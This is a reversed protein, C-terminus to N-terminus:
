FTIMYSVKLFALQEAVLFHGNSDRRQEYALYATSGPLFDWGWLLSASSTRGASNGQVIIRWYLDDTVSHTVKVNGVVFRDAGRPNGVEANGNLVVAPVPIYDGEATYYHYFDAYWMGRWYGLRFRGWSAPRHGFAIDYVDNHFDPYGYPVYRLDRGGRYNLTVFLDNEATVQLVPSVFNLTTESDANWNHEYGVSPRIMRVGGRNIQFEKLASLGAGRRGFDEPQLFATDARFDDSIEFYYGEVNETLGYRGLGLTYRYGDGGEGATQSKIGEFGLAMGAPFVLRGDVLGVNNYRARDDGPGEELPVEGGREQRGIGMVGFTSGVPFDYTARAFAFNDQPYLPDDDKLVVDLASYNVPGVRGAVKAGAAIETLRRTYVTDSYTDFLEYGETFFPRKEELYIETPELSIQAPDAEIYAYDPLVTLLAAVAAGARYEFDLGARPEFEWGETAEYGYAPTDFKEEARGTVYPTLKFPRPRPLGEFGEVRGFTSVRNLFEGDGAWYTDEYAARRFRLFQIGFHGSNRDYRLTSWPIAMECYWAGEGVSTAAEWFGDWAPGGISGDKAFAGDYRVGRWNVIFDYASQRDNNADLMVNVADDDNMYMDRVTASAALRDAADEYCIWGVYLAEEDYLVYVETDRFAPANLAPRYQRFGRAPQVGGWAEEWVGDIVPPVEARSARIVWPEEAAAGGALPLFALAWLKARKM